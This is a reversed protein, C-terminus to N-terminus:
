FLTGIGALGKRNKGTETSEGWWGRWGCGVGKWARKEQLIKGSATVPTQFAKGKM